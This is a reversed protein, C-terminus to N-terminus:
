LYTSKGIEDGDSNEGLGLYDTISGSMRKIEYLISLGSNRVYIMSPEGEPEQPFLTLNVEGAIAIDVSDTPDAEHVLTRDRIFYLLSEQEFEEDNLLFAEADIIQPPENVAERTTQKRFHGTSPDRPPRSKRKKSENDFINNQVLTPPASDTVAQTSIGQYDVLARAADRLTQRGKEMVALDAETPEEYEREEVDGDEPDSHKASADTSESPETGVAAPQKPIDAPSEPKGNKAAMLMLSYHKKVAEVEHDIIAPLEDNFRKKAVFYGGAAGVALSAVVAGGAILITKNM